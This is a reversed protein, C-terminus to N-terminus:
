PIGAGQTSKVNTRCNNGKGKEGGEKGMGEGERLLLSGEGTRGERKERESGERGSGKFRPDPPGGGSFKSITSQQLHTKSCEPM